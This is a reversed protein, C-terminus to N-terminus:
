GNIMATFEEMMRLSREIDDQCITRKAALALTQAQRVASTINRGNVEHGSLRKINFARPDIGAGLLVSHWVQARLAETMDPYSIPLSIRSFFAPDFSQVRNTTLFMVGSFYELQRLFISVMANREINSTDRAEMFIDAEDLKLVANWHQALDLISRLRDELDNPNTGLEGISVSYIMRHLVEAVAEVTLTKGTGSKGHLLFILGSSKDDIFDGSTADYHTVLDLLVQKHEPALVLHDFADERWIIPSLGDVSIWGWRKLRMSFAQVQPYCRWLDADLVVGALDEDLRFSNMMEQYTDPDIQAFSGGDIMVRGDAHMQRDRMWNPITLAGAYNAPTPRQTFDRFMRGRATLVERTERDLPRIGLKDIAIRGDFQPLKYIYKGVASGHATPVVISLAIAYLSGFFSTQEACSEVQGALLGMSIECVVPAGRALLVPLDSYMIYGADIRTKISPDSFANIMTIAEILDCAEVEHELRLDRMAKKLVMRRHLLLQVDLKIPEEVEIEKIIKANSLLSQVTSDDSTLQLHTDTAIIKFGSFYRSEIYGLIQANTHLETIPANM